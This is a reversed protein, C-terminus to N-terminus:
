DTKRADRTELEILLEIFHKAKKLDEVGGKSRWRTLYKIACGEAFPINNAHIYEIPQIARGKYHAGGEQVDLASLAEVVDRLDRLSMLDGLGEFSKRLDTASAALYIRTAPSLTFM